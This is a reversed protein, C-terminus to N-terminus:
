SVWPFWFIPAPFDPIKAPIDVLVPGFLKLVFFNTNLKKAGAIGRRWDGEHRCHSDGFIGTYLAWAVGVCAWRGHRAM